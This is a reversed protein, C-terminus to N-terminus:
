RAGARAIGVLLLGFAIQAPVPAFSNRVQILVPLLVVGLVVGSCRELRGLVAGAVGLFLAVGVIGFNHYAEAVPSGGIQGVRDAIEVNFLRTDHAPPGGHWGTLSEVVRLPVAVLTAGGRGPEDWGLVVVTPRLSFGLEAVADLPLALADLVAEGETRTKRVLGSLVLTLAAGGVTWMPRVRVRSAEVVTMALLPFLVEGRTGLPLAMLAYVAFCCWGAVRSPGGAAVALVAGVGACLTGVALWPDTAGAEVFAVYGGSLLDEGGARLVATAFLGLGAVQVAVGLPGLLVGGPGEDPPAVGPGPSALVAALTFAAMGLVALSVARPMLPDGLWVTDEFGLDHEGRVVVALLLGGHFLGFVVLYAAAPRFLGRPHGRVLVFLCAAWSVWFTAAVATGTPPECWGAVGAAAVVLATTTAGFRRSAAVDAGARGTVPARDM